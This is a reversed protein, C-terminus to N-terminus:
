LWANCARAHRHIRDGNDVIGAAAFEERGLGHRGFRGCAPVDSWFREARDLAPKGRKRVAAVYCTGGQVSQAIPERDIWEGYPQTERYGRPLGPERCGGFHPGDRNEECSGALCMVRMRECWVIEARCVGVFVVAARGRLLPLGRNQGEYPLVIAAITPLMDVITSLSLAGFLAQFPSTIAHRVDVFQQHGVATFDGDTHKSGCVFQADPRHSDVGVFIPKRQVSEFSVLGIEDTSWAFRDSRIQINFSDHCQGLRVAHVCDMRAVAEEGFVWVKGGGALLGADCEHPRPNFEEFCETIFCRSAFQCFLCAHWNQGATRPWDGTHLVAELNGLFEAPRHNELGGVAAAPTAHSDDVPFIFQSNREFTRLTFAFSSKAASSYENLFKNLSRPM